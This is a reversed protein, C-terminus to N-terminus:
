IDHCVFYLMISLNVVEFYLLLLSVYDNNIANDGFFCFLLNVEVQM